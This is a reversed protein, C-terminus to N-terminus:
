PHAAADNRTLTPGKTVPAPRSEAKQKDWSMCIGTLGAVAPVLEVTFGYRKALKQAIQFHHSKKITDEHEGQSIHTAVILKRMEPLDRFSSTLEGTLREFVNECIAAYIHYLVSIWIPKSLPLETPKISGLEFQNSFRVREKQAETMLAQAALTVELLNGPESSLDAEHTLDFWHNGLQGTQKCVYTMKQAFSTAHVLQDEMQENTQILSRIQEELLSTGSDGPTEAMVRAFRRVGKLQIENNWGRTVASLAHLNRAVGHVLTDIVDEGFDQIKSLDSKLTKACRNLQLSLSELKAYELFRQQIHRAQVDKQRLESSLNFIKEKLAAAEANSTEDKALLMAQAQAFAATPMSSTAPGNEPDSGGSFNRVWALFDNTEQDTEKAWTKRQRWLIIAVGICAVLFINILLQMRAQASDNISGFLKLLFSQSYLGFADPLLGEERYIATARPALSLLGIGLDLPAVQAALAQQKNLWASSLVFGGTLYWRVSQEVAIPLTLTLLVIKDVQRWQLGATKSLSKKDCAPIAKQLSAKAIATCDENYIVLYDLEDPRLNGELTKEVSHNLGWQLNEKLTSDILADQMLGSLQVKAAATAYSYASRAKTIANSYFYQTTSVAYLLTLAGLLSLLLFYPNLRKM